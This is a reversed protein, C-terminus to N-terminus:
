FVDSLVTLKSQELMATLEMDRDKVTKNKKFLNKVEGYFWHPFLLDIKLLEMYQGPLHNKRNYWELISEIIDARWRGRNEAQKGILKRLDRVPLDYTVGDLDLVYTEQGSFLVNGKGYDQHCLPSQHFEMGTILDYSSKRIADLVMDAMEIMSGAYKLYNAYGMKSGSSISLEKWEIMDKRMSDYHVPWKGLKYSVRAKEPPRYGVSSKHFEALGEVALSLDASVDFNLDRGEVWDYLVFLQGGYDTIEGGKSNLHVGPVNGGNNYIHRQGNVSFLAKDLSHRLRKLCKVESDHSIRWLTKLGENQIVKMDYARIGYEALVNEALEMLDTRRNRDSM